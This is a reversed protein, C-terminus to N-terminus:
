LDGTQYQLSGGGKNKVWLIVDMLRIRLNTARIFAVLFVTWFIM